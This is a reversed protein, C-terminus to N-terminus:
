HVHDSGGHALSDDIAIRVRNMGVPLAIGENLNDIVAKFHALSELGECKFEPEWKVATIIQSIFQALWPLSHTKRISLMDPKTELFNGGGGLM